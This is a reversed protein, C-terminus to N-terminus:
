YVMAMHKQVSKRKMKFPVVKRKKKQSDCKSLLAVEVMLKLDENDYPIALPFFTDSAKGWEELNKDVRDVLLIVAADFEQCIQSASQADIERGKLRADLIVLDLKRKILARYADDFCNVVSPEWFGWNQIQRKIDAAIISENEAILIRAQSNM